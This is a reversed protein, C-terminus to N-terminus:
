QLGQLLQLVDDASKNYYQTLDYKDKQAPNAFIKFNNEFTSTTFGAQLWTRLAEKYSTPSVYGDPGAVKGLATSMDSIAAPSSGGGTSSPTGIKGLDQKTVEGSGKNYTVLTANGAADEVHFTTIDGVDGLGIVSENGFPVSVGKPISKLFEIKSKFSDFKAKESKAKQDASAIAFYQAAAGPVKFYNADLNALTQSDISKPDVL